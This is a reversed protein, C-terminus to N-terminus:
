RAAPTSRLRRALRRLGRHTSVRVAAPTKGLIEAAARVDLGVVARLMVAEAQERPLEAILRGARATTLHELVAAETDSTSAVDVLVDDSLDTLPRRADRRLSDMARTRVIRASWARFDDPGGKFRRLDRAIQLWAEGTVDDADQGVLVAAYRRLGPQVARYLQAFALQDGARCRLSCMM